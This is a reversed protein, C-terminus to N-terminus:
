IGKVTFPKSLQKRQAEKLLSEARKECDGYSLICGADLAWNCLAEIKESQEGKYRWLEEVTSETIPMQLKTKPIPDTVTWRKVRAENLKDEHEPIAGRRMKLATPAGLAMAYELLMNVKWTPEGPYDNLRRLFANSLKLCVQKRQTKAAAM